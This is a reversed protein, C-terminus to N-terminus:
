TTHLFLKLICKVIKLTFSHAAYTLYNLIGRIIAVVFVSFNWIEEILLTRKM